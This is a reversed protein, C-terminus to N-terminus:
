SGAKPPTAQGVEGSDLGQVSVDSHGTLEVKAAQNSIANMKTADKLDIAAPIPTTPYTVGGPTSFACLSAEEM